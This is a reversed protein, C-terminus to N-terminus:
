NSGTESFAVSNEHQDKEALSDQYNSIMQSQVNKLLEFHVAGQAAQQVSQTYSSDASLLNYMLEAQVGALINRQSLSLNKDETRPDAIVLLAQAFAEETQQEFGMKFLDMLENQEQEFEANQWSKENQLFESGFKFNEPDKALDVLEREEEPSKFIKKKLQMKKLVFEKLRPNSSNTNINETATQAEAAGNAASASVPPIALNAPTVAGSASSGVEPESAVSQAESIQDQNVQPTTQHRILSFGGVVLGVVGAIVLVKPLLSQTSAIRKSM